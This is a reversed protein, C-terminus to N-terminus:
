REGLALNAVTTIPSPLPKAKSLSARALLELTYKKQSLLMYPGQTTIEIGLFYSLAGMDQVVFSRSLNHVVQEIEQSNNGTL